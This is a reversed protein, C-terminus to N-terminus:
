QDVIVRSCRVFLANARAYQGTFLGSKVGLSLEVTFVARSRWPLLDRTIDLRRMCRGFSPTRVFLMCTVLIFAARIVQTPEHSNWQHLEIQLVFILKYPHTFSM